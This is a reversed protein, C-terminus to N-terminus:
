FLMKIIIISNKYISPNALDCIRELVLLKIKQWDLFQFHNPPRSEGSAAASVHSLVLIKNLCTSLANLHLIVSMAMVTAPIRQERYCTAHAQRYLCVQHPLQSRGVGTIHSVFYQPQFTFQNLSEATQINPGESNVDALAKILTGSFMWIGGHPMLSHFTVEEQILKVLTSGLNSNEVERHWRYNTTVSKETTQRSYTNM